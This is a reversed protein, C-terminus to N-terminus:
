TSLGALSQEFEMGPIAVPNKLYQAENRLQHQSRSYVPYYFVLDTSKVFTRNFQDVSLWLYVSWM